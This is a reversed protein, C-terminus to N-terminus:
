LGDGIRERDGGGLTLVHGGVRRLSRRAPGWARALRLMAPLAAPRRLLAPPLRRFDVQGFADACATVATPLCAAASDFVVRAAIAAAGREAAVALVAASEMDVAGCGHRAFLARKGAVTAVPSDACLLPGTHITLEDRGRRPADNRGTHSANDGNRPADHDSRLANDDGHPAPSGSYLSRLLADRCAPDALHRGGRLDLVAAPVVVAGPPLRPSLGGALGFSVLCEAGRELLLRAAAAANEGGMGCVALLVDDGAEVAARLPIVGGGFVRAERLLACIIGLRM